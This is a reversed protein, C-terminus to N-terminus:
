CSVLLDKFIIGLFTSLIGAILSHSGSGQSQSVPPQSGRVPFGTSIGGKTVSPPPQQVPLVGTHLVLHPRVGSVYFKDQGDAPPPYPGANSVTPGLPAKGKHDLPPHLSSVVHSTPVRGGPLYISQLHKEERTPPNPGQSPQASPLPPPGAPTTLYPAVVSAQTNAPYQNASGKGSTHYYSGPPQSSLYVSTVSPSKSSSLTVPVVSTQNGPLSKFVFPLQQYNSQSPQPSPSRSRKIQGTPIVNQLSQTTPVGVKYLTSINASRGPVMASPFMM